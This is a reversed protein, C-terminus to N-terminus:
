ENLSDPYGLYKVLSNGKSKKVIKEIKFSENLVSKNIKQLEEAYFSGEIPENNLDVINYTTPKTDNIKSIKCLERTWKGTIKKTFASLYIPIRVVDGVEYKISNIEIPFNNYCNNILLDYNEPKFADIPKMTITTHITNNYNNVLNQLKDICRFSNQSDFLKGM